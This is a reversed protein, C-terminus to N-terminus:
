FLPTHWFMLVFGSTTTFTSGFLSMLVSWPCAAWVARVALHCKVMSEYLEHTSMPPLAAVLHLTDLQNQMISQM